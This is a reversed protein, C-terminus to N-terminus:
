HDSWKGDWFCMGFLEDALCEEQDNVSRAEGVVRCMMIRKKITYHILLRQGQGQWM